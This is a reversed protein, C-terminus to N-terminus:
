KNFATKLRNPYPVSPKSAPEQHSSSAGHKHKACMRKPHPGRCVQCTHAYRCRLRSCTANNFQYCQQGGVRGRFSGQSPSSRFRYCLGEALAKNYLESNPLHWSHRAPNDERAKRFRVDYQLAAYPGVQRALDQIISSYKMLSTICGTNKETYVAVFIAFAKHWAETSKIEEQDAKHFSIIGESSQRISLQGSEKSSILARFSIFQEGWIKAGATLSIGQAGFSTALAAPASISNTADLPTIDPNNATAHARASTLLPHLTDPDSPMPVTPTTLAPPKIVGMELLSKIVSDTVVPAVKSVIDDVSPTATAARKRKSM